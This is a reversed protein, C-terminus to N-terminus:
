WRPRVGACHILTGIKTAPSASAAIKDRRAGAFHLRWNKQGPRSRDSFRFDGKQKGFFDAAFDDGGIRHLDIASEVDPRGLRRWGLARAHRMVQNVDAFQRFIKVSRLEDPERLLRNFLYLQSVFGRNEAAAGSKIELRKQASEAFRGRGIRFQAGFQFGRRKFRQQVFQALAIRRSVLFNVFM